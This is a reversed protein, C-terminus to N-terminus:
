FSLIVKLLGLKRNFQEVNKLVSYKEGDEVDHLVFILQLFRITKINIM